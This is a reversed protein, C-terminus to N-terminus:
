IAKRFHPSGFIALSGTWTYTVGVSEGSIKHFQDCVKLLINRANRKNMREMNLHILKFCLYNNLYEFYLRTYIANFSLDLLYKHLIFVIFINILYNRSDSHMNTGQIQNTITRMRITMKLIHIHM